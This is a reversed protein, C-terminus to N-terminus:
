NEEELDVQWLIQGHTRCQGAYIPGDIDAGWEVFEGNAIETDLRRGCHPCEAPGDPAVLIIQGQSDM